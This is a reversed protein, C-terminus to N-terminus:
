GARYEGVTKWWAFPVAILTVLSLSYYRTSVPPTGLPLLRSNRYFVVPRVGAPRPFGTPKYIQNDIFWIFVGGGLIVLPNRIRKAAFYIFPLFLYM